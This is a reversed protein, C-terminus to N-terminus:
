TQDDVYYTFNVVGHRFIEGANNIEETIATGTHIAGANKYKAIIIASSLSIVVINCMDKVELTGDFSSWCDVQVDIASGYDSKGGWAAESCEGLKIFPYRALKPVNDYVRYKSKKLQKYVASQVDVMASKKIGIM